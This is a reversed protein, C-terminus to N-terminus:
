AKQSLKVQQWDFAQTNDVYAKYEIAGPGIEIFLRGAHLTVNYPNWIVVVPNVGLKYDYRGRTRSPVRRTSFVMMVRSLIPTRALGFSDYNGHDWHFNTSPADPNWSGKRFPLPVCDAPTEDGGGRYHAYYQHLKYWSSFNPNLAGYHAAPIQESESRIPVISGRPNAARYTGFEPPLSQRELLLNLDKKLGGNRVDALVGSSGTTLDHFHRRITDPGSGSAAVIELSEFSPVKEPVEDAIELGSLGELATLDSEPWSSRAHIIELRDEPEDSHSFRAKQNEGGVWWAYSGGGTTVRPVRVRAADDAEPGLTGTGVLEIMDAGSGTMASDPDAPATPDAHSVLWSRFNPLRGKAYTASHDPDNLWGTWSNWCGLWMPHALEDSAASEPTPDFVSATATIRQDPGAHKQLEGIASM